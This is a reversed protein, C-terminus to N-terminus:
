KDKIEALDQGNVLVKGSTPRDLAGIMNLLTSKGSGSPGMVAVLEGPAIRLNVDDLARIEEGDGFIKTLNQTEVIWAPTAAM